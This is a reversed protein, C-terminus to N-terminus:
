TNKGQIGVVPENRFNSAKAAYKDEL